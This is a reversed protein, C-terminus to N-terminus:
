NRDELYQRPIPNDRIESQWFLNVIWWRKGDNMLQFSNIGRLFPTKDDKRHRLEYTSFVHAINGYREVRRTKESEYISEVVFVSETRDIYEQPTLPRAEVSGTKPDRITPILRGDKHFLSRFRVWDRNKGAEGSIVEYVAKVISEISAGDKGEASKAQGFINTVSFVIFLM